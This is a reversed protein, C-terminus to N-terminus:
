CAGRQHVHFDECTPTQAPHTQKTLPLQSHQLQRKSCVLDTQLSPRKAEAPRAHLCVLMGVLAVDRGGGAPRGCWIRIWMAAAPWGKNPSGKYAGPPRGQGTLGAAPAAAASPAALPCASAAAASPTALPCASAAAALQAADAQPCAAASAAPLRSAAPCLPAVM